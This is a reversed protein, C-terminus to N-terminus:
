AESTKAAEADAFGNYLSLPGLGATSPAFGNPSQMADVPGFFWCFVWVYFHFLLKNKFLCGCRIFDPVSSLFSPPASNANRPSTRQGAIPYHPYSNRSLLTRIQTATSVDPAPCFNTCM